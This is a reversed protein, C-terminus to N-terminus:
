YAEVVHNRKTGDKGRKLFLVLSVSQGSALNARRNEPFVDLSAFGELSLRGEALGQISESAATAGANVAGGNAGNGNTAVSKGSPAASNAMYKVVAPQDKRIAYKIYRQEHNVFMVMAEYTGFACRGEQPVMVELIAASKFPDGQAIIPCFRVYSGKAVGKVFVTKKDAVFHRSQADYVHVHGHGLDIGDVYGVVPQFVEVMKKHSLTIEVAREVGQKSVRTLVDFLRGAIEWPKCPFQHSDPVMGVGNPAVLKVFKRRRGNQEKEFIKVAYMSVIADCQERNEEPHHLLYSARAREVREQLSLYRRGDKGTQPQRDEERLCADYGWVQLFQPLRFDSYVESIKLALGLMCSNILSPRQSRLKTYIALLTRAEVSGITKYNQKLYRFVTWQTDEPHQAGSNVSEMLQEWTITPNIEDTPIM